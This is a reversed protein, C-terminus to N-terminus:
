NDKPLDFVAKANEVASKFAPTACNPYYDELVFPLLKQLAKYAKRNAELGKKFGEEFIKKTDPNPLHELRYFFYDDMAHLMNAEFLLREKEYHEAILAQEKEHDTM